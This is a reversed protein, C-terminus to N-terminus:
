SLDQGSSDDTPGPPYQLIVKKNPLYALVMSVGDRGHMWSGRIETDSCYLEYASGDEFILFLQSHPSSTGEKAVVGAIRRGVLADVDKVPM